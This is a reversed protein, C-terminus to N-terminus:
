GPDGLEGSAAVFQDGMALLQGALEFRCGRLERRLLELIEADLNTPDNLVATRIGDLLQQPLQDVPDLDGGVTM